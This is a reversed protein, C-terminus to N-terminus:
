APPASDPGLDPHPRRAHRPPEPTPPIEDPEPWAPREDPEPVPPVEDPAPDPPVEDPEPTDPFDPSPERRRHRAPDESGSTPHRTHEGDTRTPSRHSSPRPPHQAM